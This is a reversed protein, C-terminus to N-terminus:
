RRKNNSHIYRNEQSGLDRFGRNHREINPILRLWQNKLSEMQDISPMKAAAQAAGVYFLWEKELKGYRQADLKGEMYLQFGKREALYSTIAKVFKENDPIMPYGEEDVPFALYAMEVTGEKFSTFIVSDNLKYTLDSNVDLDPSNNCHMPSHFSDTSYRMPIKQTYERCQIIQHLDCPLEGKFNEVKICDLKDIYEQPVNILNMASWVYEMADYFDMTGLFRFNRYYNELIYNISIYKGTLAM